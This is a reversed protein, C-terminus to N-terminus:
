LYANFDQFRGGPGFTPEGHPTVRLTRFLLLPLFLPFRRRLSGRKLGADVFMVCRIGAALTAGPSRAPSGRPRRTQKSRLYFTAASAAATFMARTPLNTPNFGAHKVGSAM